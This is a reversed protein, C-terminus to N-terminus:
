RYFMQDFVEQLGSLNEAVYHVESHIMGTISVLEDPKRYNAIAMLAFTM